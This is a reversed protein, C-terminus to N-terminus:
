KMPLTKLKRSFTTKGDIMSKTTETFVLLNKSISFDRLNDNINNEVEFQKTKTKNTNSYTNTETMHKNNIKSYKSYIFKDADYCQQYVDLMCTKGNYLNDEIKTLKNGDQPKCSYVVITAKSSSERPMGHIFYLYDSKDPNGVVSVSGSTKTIESKPLDIVTETANTALDVVKFAGPYKGREMFPPYSEVEYHLYYVKNKCIFPKYDWNAESVIKKEERTSTDFIFIDGSKPDDYVIKTVGEYTTMSLFNWTGLTVDHIKIPVPKEEDMKCFYIGPNSSGDYEAWAAYDGSVNLSYKQSPEKAIVKETLTDFNLAVIAYRSTGAFRLYAFYKDNVCNTQYDLMPSCSKSVLTEKKEVLDYVFLSGKNEDDWAWYVVYKSDPGGISINHNILERSTLQESSIAVVGGVRAQTAYLLSLALSILLVKRWM